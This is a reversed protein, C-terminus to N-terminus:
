ANRVEINRSVKDIYDYKHELKEKLSREILDFDQNQLSRSFGPAKEQGIMQDIIGLLESYFYAGRCTKELSDLTRCTSLKIEQLTKLKGSTQFQSLLEFIRKFSSVLETELSLRKDIAVNGWGIELFRESNFQSSLQTLRRSPDLVYMQNNQHSSVGRMSGHKSPIKGFSPKVSARNISHVNKYVALVQEEDEGNEDLVDGRKFYVQPSHGMRPRYRDKM